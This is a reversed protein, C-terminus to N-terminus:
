VQQFHLPKLKTIMDLTLHRLEEGPNELKEWYSGDINQNIMYTNGYYHNLVQSPLDFSQSSLALSNAKRYLIEFEEEQQIFSIFIISGRVLYGFFLLLQFHAYILRVMHLFLSHKLVFDNKLVFSHVWKSTESLLTSPILDNVLVPAFM